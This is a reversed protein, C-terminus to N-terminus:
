ERVSMISTNKYKVAVTLHKYKGVDSDEYKFSIEGELVNLIISFVSSKGRANWIFAKLSTSVIRLHGYDINQAITDLGNKPNKNPCYNTLTPFEELM